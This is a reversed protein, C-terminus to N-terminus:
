SMQSDKPQWFVRLMALLKGSSQDLIKHLYLQNNVQPEFSQVIVSHGYKGEGVFSVDLEAVKNQLRFKAPIAELAWELYCVNNVHMNWDIDSARIVFEQTVQPAGSIDKQVVAHLIPDDHGPSAVDLLWRPIKLPRRNAKDLLLWMTSARGIIHDDEDHLTLDRYGRISSDNLVPWTEIRMTQHWRPYTHMRVSLNSLVWMQERRAVDEASVNLRAAHNSAAEQIFRCIAQPSAFGSPGIEYSHIKFDERWIRPPDCTTM